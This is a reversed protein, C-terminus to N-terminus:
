NEDSLGMLAKMREKAANLEEPSIHKNADQKSFFIPEGPKPFARKYKMPILDLIQEVKRSNDWIQKWMESLIEHLEPQDHEFQELKDTIEDRM